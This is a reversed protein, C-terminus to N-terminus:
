EKKKIKQVKEEIKESLAPAIEGIRQTSLEVKDFHEGIYSSHSFANRINVAEAGDDEDIIGSHELMKGFNSRKPMKKGNEEYYYDRSHKDKLEKHRALILQEIKHINAFVEHRKRDYEDFENELENRTLRVSVANQDDVLYPILTSIRNDYLFRMFDGYNKLKISEQEITIPVNSGKIRITISFPISIELTSGESQRRIPRIDKLKFSNFRNTILEQDNFFLIDRAMLFLVIDEVKYKRIARETAKLKHLARSLNAIEKERDPKNFKELHSAVLTTGQPCDSEDLMMKLLSNKQAPTLDSLKSSNNIIEGIRQAKDLKPNKALAKALKLEIEEKAKQMLNSDLPKINSTNDCSLLNLSTDHSLFDEIQSITKGYDVTQKDGGLIAKFFGYHRKYSDNPQIYFEQSDDKLHQKLYKFILHAVNAEDRREGKTFSEGFKYQLIKKIYESFLGRPLEVPMDLYRQM